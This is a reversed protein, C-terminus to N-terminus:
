LHWMIRGNTFHKFKKKHQVFYKLHLTIRIQLTQEIEKFMENEFHFNIQMQSVVVISFLTHESGCCCHLQQKILQGCIFSIWM